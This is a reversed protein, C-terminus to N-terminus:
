SANSNRVDRDSFSAKRRSSDALIRDSSEFVVRDKGVQQIDNFGFQPCVTSPRLDRVFHLFRSM